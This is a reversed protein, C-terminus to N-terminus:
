PPTELVFVRVRRIGDLRREYATVGGFTAEATRHIVMLEDAAAARAVVACTTGDHTVTAQPHHELNLAWAPTTRQGFNTGLLALTDRFPIAIVHASRRLGSRRGVTVLDLVPLGALARPLSVRGHTLRTTLRDLPVLTSPAWRAGLRTTAIHRVLLQLWNPEPYAYGLDARLGM